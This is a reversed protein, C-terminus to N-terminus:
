RWAIPSTADFDLGTTLQVAPAIPAPTVAPTPPATPVPTARGRPPPAPAPTMAPAAPKPLPQWWLQFLGALGAPAIYVLGSSDPAWTPQAAQQGSLVVRRAGMTTGNLMAVEISTVQAGGTCVMALQGDASLASQSCDDEPATLAHGVTGARTTIWLQSVVRDNIYTYKTYIVGGGPLPLPQVDGGTYDNPTTWRRAQTFSGGAPMSWIAMVVNFNNNRDKPDYSLYLTSGDPAPRPYFSWHSSDLTRGQAHTLQAQVHGDLDVVYVDSWYYERKVVLLSQGNATYAPQMWGTGKLIPTFTGRSLRYVTGQQALYLTGPLRKIPGDAELQNEGPRRAQLALTSRHAGLFLYVGVAFSVNVVVLLLMALVRPGTWQRRTM